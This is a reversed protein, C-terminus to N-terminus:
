GVRLSELDEWFGPYSVGVCEHGAVLTEGHALLGAVGLTMALRHDGHSECPAGKLVTPGRVIMGDPLEEIDAGLKRLQVVTTSIRDSEKVRLEAADRIETEGEAQTAALAILPIEDIVNPITEGRISVGTLSSSEISINAVPEAGASVQDEMTVSAGMSKLVHVIGIRGPNVGVNRLRIRADPHIAGLVLWAAASSADGPVNIELSNLPGPGISVSNGDVSVDAGMARLMRETHDRTASPQHVVTRGDAGLGALLVASKVQASAVPLIYEIGQLGGGRIELPPFRDGDRGYIEAGMLRLPDIIRRMPRQVLSGDGTLVSFFPFSALVGSMMRMTTGSNRVDLVQEPARFGERGRGAITLKLGRSGPKTDEVHIEVGLSRLCNMTAETDEGHLFNDVITTGQALGGLMAARHSISKDGPPELEGALSKATRVRYVM